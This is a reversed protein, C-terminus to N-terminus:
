VGLPGNREIFGQDRSVQYNDRRHLVFLNYRQSGFKGREEYSSLIVLRSGSCPKVIGAASVSIISRPYRSLNKERWSLQTLGRRAYFHSCFVNRCRIGLDLWPVHCHPKWTIVWYRRDVTVLESEWTYRSLNRCSISSPDFVKPCGTTCIKVAMEMRPWFRLSCIISQSLWYM